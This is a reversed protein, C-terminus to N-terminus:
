GHQHEERPRNLRSEQWSEALNKAEQRISESMDRPEREEPKSTALALAILTVVAVGFCILVAVTLLVAEIM